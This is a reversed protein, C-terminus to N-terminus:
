MDFENIYQVTVPMLWDQVGDENPELGYSNSRTVRTIRRGDSLEPYYALKYTEGGIVAPEKCIWKGLADFFSQVQLKQFEKTSTTRYIVFFPFQCTQVVHDTISRTESIVLAGNDASFAIGSEDLEEFFIERGNLGPFDSLLALVANTLIEYGSVDHGIPKVEKM